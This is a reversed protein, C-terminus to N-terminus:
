GALSGVGVTAAGDRSSLTWSADGRWGAAPPM